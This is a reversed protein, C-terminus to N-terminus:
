PVIVGAGRELKLDREFGVARDFAQRQSGIESGALPRLRHHRRVSPLRRLTETLPRQDAAGDRGSELEFAELHSRVIPARPPSVGSQPAIVSLPYLIFAEGSRTLPSAALKMPLM